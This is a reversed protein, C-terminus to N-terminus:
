LNSEIAGVEERYLDVPGDLLLAIVTVDKDLRDSPLPLYVIGPVASWYLKNYIEPTILTGEGVIRARQINNKLGKIAIPGTPKGKVFLYLTQKDASLASSGSFHGDPIGKGTQYLAEAHKKIWSELAKNNPLTYGLGDITLNTNIFPNHGDSISQIIREIPHNNGLDSLTLSESQRPSAVSNISLEDALTICVVTVDQDELQKPIEVTLTTGEKKYTLKDPYGVIYINNIDNNLGNVTLSNNNNQELFLYVKKKDKSLATKGFFHGPPLGERTSYIAEQHKRTWRGLGKLIAIQEQPISGDAKPGIDLLLNGGMSICDVLTRIIMNASKYNLDYPQYGWSDNTTYCLEWYPNAPQTVPVGQEPTDYDGHGTLRANVIIDPNYKRLNTLIKDAQWEEATHEWDGDFWLLDPNFTQSLENLQQQFYHQYAEWREPHEKLTYRKRTRTFVDYNPYSWDPLSFYIGTKINKAKLATVFPSIVDKKAASNRSTTLADQAKSDWLAVGDHHKSTIVAYKAGSEAILDVWENAQYKNATFGDLQKMYLDHSIYNNFFSWSESIGNVSYIGWHVFIGLKADKFWEMKKEEQQKSLQAIANLNFILVFFVFCKLQKVM